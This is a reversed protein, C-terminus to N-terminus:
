LGLGCNKCARIGNAEECTHLSENISEKLTYLYSVLDLVEEIAMDLLEDASFDKHLLTKHEEAGTKFKATHDKKFALQIRDLHAKQSENMAM